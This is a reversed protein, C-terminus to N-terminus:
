PARAPAGPENALRKQAAAFLRGRILKLAQARNASDPSATSTIAMVLDLPPYVWIFQGGFGSAMFTHRLARSPVVWWMYGYPLSVPPGGANQSQTAAAVYAQPVVQQGGWTGGQLFLQGLKAMDLTRLALGRSYSPEAFMLPTVLQQRAYDALPMGTARELVSTLMPILANDYAFATGPESHLPRAWTDVPRGASATGTPDNVGFGATMTLLHRVTISATRPDSNLARWEPMLALVPQDLSGILGQGAAIGVLASLASKAVSHVDRLATPNGDRYYEFVTRGRLVVVVSQVDGLEAAITTDLGKFAAADLVQEAPSSARWEASPQAHALSTMALFLSFLCVRCLSMSDEM